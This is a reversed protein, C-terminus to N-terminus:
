ADGPRGSCRRRILALQRTREGEIGGANVVVHGPRDLRALAKLAYLRSLATLRNLMNETSLMPLAPDMRLMPPAPDMRLMPLAPDMRLM